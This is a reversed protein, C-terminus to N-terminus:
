FNFQGANDKTFELVPLAVELNQSDAQPTYDGLRGAKFPTGVKLTDQLLNYATYVTLYGQDIPNWLFVEPSVGNDIYKKM